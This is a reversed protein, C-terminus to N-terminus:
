PQYEFELEGVRVTDGAQAGADELARSVGIRDLLVQFRELAPESDFDTRAVLGEVAEGAVTFGWTHREVLPAERKARRRLHIPAPEAQAPPVRPARELAAGIAALLEPVGEGTKASCYLAAARREVDPCLDVKNMAVVSPRAALDASYEMVEGRVMELEGWPDPGSVDIVYVLVRTREVHRLFRLGLGAGLAAGEILGPIDAVVIRAGGALESVGLEPDLTTFPYDGVKPRAASIAALLSSKGANPPGVLGADAILKLELRVEREEGPRGPEAQHPAQNTSSKFHVNGRGGSGGLAVVAEAGEHDLDAILRGDAADFVLTGPPVPLRMDAGAKGAKLSGQGAKGDEARWSRRSSYSNLSSAETTAFAILSGGRGGDGGNPGGHPIFPERRFSASGNGGHGARVHIQTSDVFSGRQEPSM